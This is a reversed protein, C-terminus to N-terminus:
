VKLQRSKEPFCKARLWATCVLILLLHGSGSGGGGSGGSSGQASIGSDNQVADDALLLPGTSQTVVPKDSNTLSVSLDNAVSAFVQVGTNEVWGPNAFRISHSPNGSHVIDPNDPDPVRLGLEYDGLPWTAPVTITASQYTTQAPLWETPDIGVMVVSDTFSSDAKTFVIEVNREKYLKAYGNNTVWLGITLNSGPRLLGSLEVKELDFRYGVAKQIDQWCGEEIWKSVWAVDTRNNLYTYRYDALAEVGKVCFDGDSSSPAYEDNSLSADYEARWGCSEGGIPVLQTQQQVFARQQEYNGISSAPEYTGEHTESKLFCDNYFSVRSAGEGTNASYNDYKMRPTRVGIFGDPLEQLWTGVIDPVLLSRTEATDVVEGSVPDRYLTTCNWEGWAGVMGAEVYALAGPSNNLVGAIQAIHTKVIDIDSPEFSSVRVLDLEPDPNTPCYNSEDGYVSSPRYVGRFIVKIGVEGAIKLVRDIENLLGPPLNVSSAENPMEVKVLMLSYKEDGNRYANFTFRLDDDTRLSAGCHGNWCYAHDDKHEPFPFGQDDKHENAITITSYKYLGRDPNAFKETNDSPEFPGVVVISEDDRAIAESPVDSITGFIEDSASFGDDEIFFRVPADVSLDPLKFTWQVTEDFAQEGISGSVPGGPEWVWDSGDGIYNLLKGNELLYDYGGSFGTTVVNDSNIMVLRRDFSGQSEFDVTVGQVGYSASASVIKPLETGANSVISFAVVGACVFFSRSILTISYLYNDKDM